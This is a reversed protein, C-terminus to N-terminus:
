SILGSLFHTCGNACRNDTHIYIHIYSHDLHKRVQKLSLFIIIEEHYCNSTETRHDMDDFHFFITCVNLCPSTEDIFRAMKFRQLLYHHGVWWDGLMLSDLPMDLLEPSATESWKSYLYPEAPRDDDLQFKVQDLKPWAEALQSCERFVLREPIDLDRIREPWQGETRHRTGVTAPWQLTLNQLNPFNKALQVLDRFLYPNENSCGIDLKSLTANSTFHSLFHSSLAQTGYFELNMSVLCSATTLIPQLIHRVFTTNTSGPYAHFNKLTSSKFRCPSEEWFDIKHYTLHLEVLDQLECVAAWTLPSLSHRCDLGSDIKLIKITRPFAMVSEACEIKLSELPVDKFIEGLDAPYDFKSSRKVCGAFLSLTRLQCFQGFYRLKRPSYRGGFRIDVIPVKEQTRLMIEGQQITQSDTPGGPVDNDYLNISLEPISGAANLCSLVANLGQHTTNWTRTSLEVRRLNRAHRVIFEFREDFSPSLEDPIEKRARFMTMDITLSRVHSVIGTDHYITNWLKEEKLSGRNPYFHLNRYLIAKAHEYFEVISSSVPTYIQTSTRNFM